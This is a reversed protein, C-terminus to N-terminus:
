PSVTRTNLLLSLLLIVESISSSVTMSVPSPTTREILPEFLFKPMSRDLNFSSSSLVKACTNMIAM